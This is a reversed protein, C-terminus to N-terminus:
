PVTYLHLILYMISKGEDTGLMPASAWKKICKLHFVHYCGECSWVQDRGRVRDCCVMCEYTGATLEQALQDSQVTPASRRGKQRGKFRSQQSPKDHKRKTYDNRDTRRDGEAHSSPPKGVSQSDKSLSSDESTPNAAKTSLETTPDIKESTVHNTSPETKQSQPLSKETTTYQPHRFNRHRQRHNRDRGQHTKVDDDRGNKAGAGRKVPEKDKDLQQTDSPGDKSDGRPKDREGTANSQGQPTKPDSKPRGRRQGPNFRTRKDQEASLGGDKDARTHARTDDKQETRDEGNRISNQDHAAKTLSNQARRQHSNFKTRKDMEQDQQTKDSGESNGHSRPRGHGRQRSDYYHNRHYRGASRIGGMENLGRRDHRPTDRREKSDEGRASDRPGPLSKQDTLDDSRGATASERKTGSREKESKRGTKGDKPPNNSADKAPTQHTCSEKHPVPSPSPTDKVYVTCESEAM